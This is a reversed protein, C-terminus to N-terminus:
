LAEETSDANPQRNRYFELYNQLILLAAMADSKTKRQRRSLDEMIMLREAERSTLREDWPHVPVALRGSHREIWQLVLKAQPGENGNMELPLGVVIEEVNREKNIRCLEALLHEESSQEITPLAQATIKLPDSVAVGVRKLGLDLALITGYTNM